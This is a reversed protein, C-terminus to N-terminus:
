RTLQAHWTSENDERLLRATLQKVSLRTGIRSLFGNLKDLSLKCDSDTSEPNAITTRAKAALTGVILETQTLM